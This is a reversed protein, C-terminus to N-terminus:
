RISRIIVAADGNFPAQLSMAPGANVTETESWDGTRPNFWQVQMQGASAPLDLTLDGGRSLYIAYFDGTKGLCYADELPALLANCPAMEHFPLSELFQRARLMDDLMPAMDEITLSGGRVYADQYHLEFNGGGLYIPYLIQARLKFQLEEDVRHMGPTEDVMIPIPHGLEVSRARHTQVIRNSNPLEVRAFDSAGDGLQLSTLDFAVNGLFPWTRKRHVTIPHDYPDIDRMLEGLRIQESDWYNENAEEGINWILGPHHGFRAVMERYYLFHDYGHWASDDDLVIHLVVGKEQVYTFFTDWAALRAIDFRDSQQRAENQTEGAWPWTDKRDGNVNNTIVYISNVGREALYDVAARKADWDGFASGIFNEPDDLGGKLWYPGDIFKLYHSDREHQLRGACAFDPLGGPEYPICDDPAVVNFSGAYGGLLPHSSSSSFRWPGTADPSFRVKWVNGVEGGIGDGDFFAPVVFRQGEPGTFTVDVAIQFPNNQEDPVATHPGYLPIELTDWKIFRGLDNLDNETEPPVPRPKDIFLATTPALNRRWFRNFTQLAFVALVVGVIVLLVLLVLYKRQLLHPMNM